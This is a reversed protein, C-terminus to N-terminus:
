ARMLWSIWRESRGNTADVTARLERLRAENIWEKM